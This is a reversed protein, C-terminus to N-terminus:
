KDEAHEGGDIMGNAERDHNLFPLVGAHADGDVSDPAIKADGAGGQDGAVKNIM